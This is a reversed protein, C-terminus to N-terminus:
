TGLSEYESGILCERDTESLGNHARKAPDFAVAMLTTKCNRVHTSVYCELCLHKCSASVREM